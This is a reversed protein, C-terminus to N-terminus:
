VDHSTKQFNILTLPTSNRNACGMEPRISFFMNSILVMKPDSDLITAQYSISKPGKNQFNQHEVAVM